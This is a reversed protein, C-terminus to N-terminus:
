LFQLHFSPQLAVPIRRADPVGLIPVTSPLSFGESLSETRIDSAILLSSLSRPTGLMLLLICVCLFAAACM